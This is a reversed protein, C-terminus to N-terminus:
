GRQPLIVFPDAERGEHLAEVLAARHQLVARQNISGKDTVEGKDISPPEALVHLRAVRNASGTGSAWLTDALRQFFARVAPHHLVEPAPVTADLGALRRCEDLRPFLLLGLEDRNLGTVVADQVCPAGAAIVKGRLPGVSVFTGTSLKFDEAIRGDFVLGRQPDAPDVFKVADGTCYYGEADFAEATQAPDKWYGPMVHPGRFRVETKAWPGDGIRTLKVECGPAPLGIQGSRVATGLAFVCAPATETMGLSTIMRVREGVTAEGLAELQDWVAQSLGAGAYMFLQVRRFMSARLAADDQMAAAIEEYGKPVNFYVTPSVERLNRLTEAIGAPTPKGEDIHLTGGNYLVIGVNHNGGFTHNWPLWDVLVPPEDALFALCQRIMQQNACLMRQTNIVGKPQKTSGSTFLFKAITDPGVQAHAAVGSEGPVTALLAEFPTTARGALTGSGLVFEVGDGLLAAITDFARGYAPGSAFVLGPTVMGVVHRLKGHDQSVLSYASSIPAVPVGAWMAGLTLTLHEIDNDSLIAVPRDVGLGRDVLAQGVAQARQLMQAYSVHHWDGRSGDALRERQAVLTRGPAQAAWQALADTLREPFRRLPETSRLVTSGDAATEVSAQLAGGIRADRYRPASM